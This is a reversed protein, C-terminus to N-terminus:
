TWGMGRAGKYLDADTKVGKYRTARTSPGRYVPNTPGGTAARTLLLLM